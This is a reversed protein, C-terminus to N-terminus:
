ERKNVSKGEIFKGQVLTCENEPKWEPNEIINFIM